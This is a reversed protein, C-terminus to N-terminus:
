RAPWRLRSGMGADCAVILKKISSGDITAMAEREKTNGADLSGEAPKGEIGGQEAASM